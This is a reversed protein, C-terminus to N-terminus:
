VIEHQRCFITLQGEQSGVTEISFVLIAFGNPREALCVLCMGAGNISDTLARWIFDVCATIPTACDNLPLQSYFVVIPIYIGRVVVLFFVLFVQRVLLELLQLVLECLPLHDAFQRGAAVLLDLYRQGDPQRIHNTPRGPVLPIIQEVVVVISENAKCAAVDCHELFM